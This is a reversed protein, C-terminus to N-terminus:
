KFNKFVAQQKKMYKRTCFEHIKMWYEKTPYELHSINVANWSLGYWVLSQMSDHDDSIKDVRKFESDELQIYALIYLWIDMEKYKEHTHEEDQSKNIFKEVEKVCHRLYKEM